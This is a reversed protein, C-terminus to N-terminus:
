AWFNPARNKTAVNTSQYHIDVTHIFPNPVGGGSVTLDNSDLYVRCQILGDVELETTNITSASGGTTSAITEAVMHQYQAVNANQVASATVPIGFPSQNHGKAYMMEFGWTVSGGTVTTANHSWHVHIHIDTGMAYDHPIHFDVYVSEGEVCQLAKIGGRYTLRTADGVDGYVQVTGLLDHWGWSPTGLSDVKIGKGQTKPVRLDVGDRLDTFNLDM